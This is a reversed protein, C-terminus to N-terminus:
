GETGDIVTAQGALHALAMAEALAREFEGADLTMAEIRVAADRLDTAEDLVARIQALMAGLPAAADQALRKNMAELVDEPTATTRAALTPPLASNRQPAPQPAPAGITEAEPAPETLGLRERIPQAEVRLGYKALKDIANVVDALPVEDPRGIMLKPYREQPGFNLAIMPRVLQRTLTAALAMADAREIDEMIQRHVKGLENGAGKQAEVTTTNGLVLKSLQRDIWDCRELFLQGGRNAGEVSVFEIEMGQPIIAAADGAINAVASWLAAKDRETAGAGYRGVRIPQGYSQVFLAWDRQTFAKFMWLWCATRALGGRLTLGSKTSHKHILFKHDPLPTKTVGDKLLMTERDVEDFAFWKQPRYVLEAPVFNGFRVDWMIEHVSLGKGLADLVHVLALQLTGTELWERVFDAHEVAAADQEDWAEVTIPLQSVVRKRTSLVASYHADKEEIEEALDFYAAPEGADARKLIQAIRQPTTGDTPYTSAYTRSGFRVPDALRGSLDKSSVPRGDPGLLTAM